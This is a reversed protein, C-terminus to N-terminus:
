PLVTLDERGYYRYFKFQWKKATHAQLGRQEHEDDDEISPGLRKLGAIIWQARDAVPAVVNFEELRPLHDIDLHRTLTPVLVSLPAPQFTALHDTGYLDDLFDDDDLNIPNNPHFPHIAPNPNGIENAHNPNSADCFSIFPMNHIYSLIRRVPIAARYGDNSRYRPLANDFIRLMDRDLDIRFLPGEGLLFHDYPIAEVPRLTKIMNFIHNCSLKLPITMDESTSLVARFRLEPSREEVWHEDCTHPATRSPGIALEIIRLQLERPLRLFPFFMDEDELQSSSPPAILYQPRPRSPIYGMWVGCRQPRPMSRFSQITVATRQELLIYMLLIARSLDDVSYGDLISPDDARPEPFAVSFRKTQTQDHAGAPASSSLM